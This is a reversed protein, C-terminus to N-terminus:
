LDLVDEYKAKMEPSKVVEEIRGEAVAGVLQTPVGEDMTERSLAKEENVVIRVVDGHEEQIAFTKTGYKRNLSELVVGDLIDTFSERSGGFEVEFVTEGGALFERFTVNLVSRLGLLERKMMKALDRDRIGVFTLLIDHSPRMVYDKFIDKSFLNGVKRGVEMVAEDEDNYATGRPPRFNESFIVESAHNDVAELSWATLLTTRVKVGAIEIEPSRKFKIMGTVSIDSAKKIFVNAIEQSFGRSLMLKLREERLRVADDESIIKYGFNKLRNQIEANCVDCEMRKWSTDPSLVELGVSFTPNGREKIMSIRETKSLEQLANRLPVTYVEAKIWVHYFGDPQVGGNVVKRVEKIVGQSKSVIRDRIVSYNEVVTESSVFCGVAKEVAQRKADRLAEDYALTRDKYFNPDALGEASVVLTPPKVQGWAGTPLAGLVAALIGTFLIKCHIPAALSRM